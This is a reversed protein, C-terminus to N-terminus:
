GWSASERLVDPLEGVVGLRQTCRTLAVYLDRLGRPSEIVIGDPDVVLVSDFELGKAERATLVSVGSLGNVAEQLLELRNRSTIVGVEGYQTEEAALKYVYLAQDSAPVDVHWPKVGTSRVSRPPRASPDVERLVDNALEMVEAPTRYNLPLEALRWRDGFTEGLASAWSTGGGISSTQAVDGVVTMSRLPCRRAIARWAMPSLEQAEDVIVHGYTWRRDAAARDALTRDDDAEYREALAEANLLDKATLIEADDDEDFDTSGSGSLVDLAGQAYAIARARAARERAAETGDDGLLEAAEDLLPVDAPSWDDGYRLLHERDLASLQPAAAALRAEDGYLDALLKQPSLLPWLQDLLTQVAPEALVEKRLEALDYEDLLQEGDLPDTGILEAYQDTLHDVMEKRFFPQAQNHTLNRNGVRAHAAAVIRPDLTLETRDVTVRLPGDPLWQRDAVAQAIVEAMVTRGKVDASEPSEPRTATVGPFLEAITVLRVGDEGLSPLVQGIFRLFAANPGVVLIGRKELQERHTYLLFAARHLAIATKGTGPGGQVVLIGPLESRIIRDQDSQITQVISEMQGTRRAELAKMLVAEGIVGTGPKSPDAAERDLDLQEDQVDIVRRLRTQVHRRRVVGHNAVATAIYFPRAAPARWDVLLPEYDADHLGLRGLHLVEGAATDLRGFYLGEEAANLRAQRLKLDRIRGDRQHLAQANRTRVQQEDDTRAETRAREADLAAYFTILHAQEADVPNPM